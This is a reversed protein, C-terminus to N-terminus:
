KLNNKFNNIMQVGYDDYTDSVFRALAHESFEKWSQAEKQVLIPYFFVGNEGAAQLDGPADGVMLIHRSDYGMDKIMGLCASKSGMEQTCVIDVMELLGFRDWEARVAEPNASSVVAIDCKGYIADFAEKVGDFPKIEEEPLESIAENVSKSWNLAKDFIPSVSLMKSIADNSLEPADDSWTKLAKVGEIKVFKEDVYLLCLTLGKFRNIGRTMSFLNIENWKELIEKEWKELGWEKIMCPGFCRFHKINMTDMACGDSDICVIHEHKKKFDLGSMVYGEKILAKYGM